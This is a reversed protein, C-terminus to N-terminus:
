QHIFCVLKAALHLNYTMYFYQLSFADMCDRYQKGYPSGSDITLEIKTIFSNEM